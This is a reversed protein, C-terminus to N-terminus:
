RMGPSTEIMEGSEVNEKISIKRSVRVVLRLMIPVIRYHFKDLIEEVSKILLFLIEFM